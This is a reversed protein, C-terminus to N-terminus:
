RKGGPLPISFGVGYSNTPASQPTGPNPQVIVGVSSGSSTNYVPHYTTGGRDSSGNSPPPNEDDAIAVSVAALSGILVVATGGIIAPTFFVSLSLKRM